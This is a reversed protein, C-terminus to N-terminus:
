TKKAANKFLATIAQTKKGVASKGIPKGIKRNNIKVVPMVEMLTNTFFVEDANFLEGPKIKKERIKLGLKPAIKIIASRTIGRLVGSEISPTFLTSAKVLFINSVAGCSVERKNNLLIADDYGKKQIEMRAAINNLYNLSKIRSLISGENRRVSSIAVSLGKKYFVDPYPHFQNAIIVINASKATTADLGVRGEGRSVALRIYADKLKNIRLLRYVCNKLETKTLPIHLDIIKASNYLRVLHENLRFVAGDYSRMTEFLGDGYLFGRDFVPLKAKDKSVIKGNVFIKM